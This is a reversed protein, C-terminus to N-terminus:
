EERRRTLPHMRYFNKLQVVPMPKALAYGQVRDVGQVQLMAVEEETEAGEAIVVLNMDHFLKTLTRVMTYDPLGNKEM